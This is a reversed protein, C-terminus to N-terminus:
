RQRHARDCAAAPDSEFALGGAENADAASPAHQFAVFAFGALIVGTPTLISRKVTM